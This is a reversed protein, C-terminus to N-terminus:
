FYLKIGILIVFSKLILVLVMLKGIGNYWPGNINTVRM